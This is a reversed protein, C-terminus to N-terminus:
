ATTTTDAPQCHHATVEALLSGLKDDGQLWTIPQHCEPCTLADGDDSSALYVDPNVPPASPAVLDLRRLLSQQAQPWTLGHHPGYDGNEAHWRGDAWWVRWTVYWSTDPAWSPLRETRRCIVIWSSADEGEAVAAVVPYGNVVTPGAHDAAAALGHRASGHRHGAELQPRPRSYCRNAAYWHMVLLQDGTHVLETSDMLTVYPVTTDKRLEDLWDALEEIPAHPDPLPYDQQFQPSGVPRGCAALATFIAIIDRIIADFCCGVIVTPRYTGDWEILGYVPRTQNM